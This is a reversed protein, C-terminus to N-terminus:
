RKCYTERTMLVAVLGAIAAVPFMWMAFQFDSVTYATVNTGAHHAMLWGFLVQAVGGGGMIIVSAIGTAAGTNEPQNSEAVLPYSIVQTSTFLGLAFFLISLSMQTLVVNIFLPITTILTAIAGFIMLPKRRGQTDSLWGVLPCGVVSGMFILSVVNSAAIDPLHHAVQLYSAGWLACLVMIPLNLLSTYLGALWNQKNSLAKMFSSLIQGENTLKHAPSKEPRDQVIMYIWLILFAGVVGDILLARRWGFLDNLYAFPTHAMMGGIFAMTVLSGIVLAQRRPPFWHSVLVVCSLFCFANGIGSLFHFFSALFFSETVAFGITGVVCVFMATLIVKRTSFRDLILGAPLLFLIDAWLYTSSMWSLQTADIHFDERLSQNIVDFINLQFFEYLFFLGASLCVVWAMFDGRPVFTKSEVAVSHSVM